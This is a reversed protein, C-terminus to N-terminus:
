KVASTVWKVRIFRRWNRIEALNRTGISLTLSKLFNQELRTKGEGFRLERSLIPGVRTNTM